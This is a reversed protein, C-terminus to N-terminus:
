QSNEWSRNGSHQSINVSELQKWRLICAECNRTTCGKKGCSYCFLFRKQNPCNPYTHGPNECQWCIITPVSNRTRHESSSPQQPETATREKWNQQLRVANVEETASATIENQMAVGQQFAEREQIELPNWDEEGDPKLELTNVQATNFPHRNFLQRNPNDVRSTVPRQFAPTESKNWPIRPTTSARGRISYSRSVEFDKCVAVLDKVTIARSAAAIPTYDSNLHSKMIFLKESESLAPEVIEFAAVLDRYFTTFSENSGQFRLYLDQKIIESYNPPLFEQKIESKFVEWSTLHIYSRTYWQLARGKLLHKVSRLLTQEDIGETDAYTNVQNLFEGLQIINPQGTYEFPWKHVPQSFRNPTAQLNSMTPTNPRGQSGLFRIFDERLHPPINDLERQQQPMGSQNRLYPDGHGPISNNQFGQRFVGQNQQERLQAEIQQRQIQEQHLQQELQQRQQQMQDLSQQLQQGQRQQQLRLQQEQRLQQQHQRIMEQQQQLQQQQQEMQQQHMQKEQERQDDPVPQNTPQQLQQQLLQEQLEQELQQQQQSAEKISSQLQAIKLRQLTEPDGPVEEPDPDNEQQESNVVSMNVLFAEIRELTKDIKVLTKNANATILSDSIISLRFRYHLLRSRYIKIQGEDKKRLASELAQRIQPLKAQCQYISDVDSLVHSSSTPTLAGGNNEKSILQSLKTIKWNSDKGRLGQVTRVMLEFELEEPNLHELEM